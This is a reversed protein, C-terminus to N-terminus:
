DSIGKENLLGVVYVYELEGDSENKVDHLIGQSIFHAEGACITIRRLYVAGVSEIEKLDIQENMVSPALSETIVASGRLVIIMEERQLTVHEGVSEGPALFVRGSKLIESAPPKILSEYRM